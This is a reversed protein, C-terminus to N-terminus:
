QELEAGFKDIIRKDMPIESAELLGNLQELKTVSSVPVVEFPQNLLFALSLAILSAGNEKHIALFEEYLSLNRKNLYTKILKDSLGLEEAPTLLEGEKVEPNARYLKEFFGNATSTYPIFPMKTQKHWEYSAEDILEMTADRMTHYVPNVSAASWLNSVASFGQLYNKGAYIRAKEMREKNFNSAGYYRIKGEKVLEEMWDMIEEIPKNKDDRHLWYLDIRDLGLTKMSEHLDHRIDEKTARSIHPEKFDYHAGKTAIIVKNGADRSKLWEGIMEESCNALGSIWRCYVNATDIFNGGGEVFADLVKYVTERNLKEGFNGGGLCINSVKLDTGKLVIHKM